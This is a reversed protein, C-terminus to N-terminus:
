HRGCMSLLGIINSLLSHRWVSIEKSPEFILLGHNGHHMNWTFFSPNTIELEDSLLAIDAFSNTDIHKKNFSQTAVIRVNNHFKAAEMDQKFSHPDNWHNKKHFICENKCFGAVGVLHDFDPNDVFYAARKLGFVNDHGLEHLVMHALGPVEHHKLIKHPIKAITDIIGYDEHSLGGPEGNFRKM